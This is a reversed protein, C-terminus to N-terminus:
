FFFFGRRENTGEVKMGGGGGRGEADWGRGDIEFSETDGLTCRTRLNWQREDTIM